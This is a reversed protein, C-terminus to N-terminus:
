NNSEPPMPKDEANKGNLHHHSCNKQLLSASPGGTQSSVKLYEILMLGSYQCARNKNVIEHIYSLLILFSLCYKMFPNNLIVYIKM